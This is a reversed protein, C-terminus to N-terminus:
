SSRTLIKYNYSKPDNILKVYENITYSHNSNNILFKDTRSSIPSNLIKTNLRVDRTAVISSKRNLNFSTLSISTLVNQLYLMLKINLKYLHTLIVLIPHWPYQLFLNPMNTSSLM